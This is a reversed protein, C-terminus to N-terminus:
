WWRREDFNTLIKETLFRLRPIRNKERKAYNALVEATPTLIRPAGEQYVNICGYKRNRIGLREFLNKGRERVAVIIGYERDNSGSSQILNKEKISGHRIVVDFDKAFKKLSEIDKIKVNRQCYLKGFNVNNTSNIQM